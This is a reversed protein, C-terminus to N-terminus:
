NLPDCAHPPPPPDLVVPSPVTVGLISLNLSTPSPPVQAQIPFEQTEGEETHFGAFSVYSVVSYSLKHFNCEFRDIIFEISAEKKKILEVM